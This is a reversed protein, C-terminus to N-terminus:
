TPGTRGSGITIEGYSGRQGWDNSDGLPHPASTVLDDGLRWIANDTGWPEVLTLAQDALAPLQTSLLRRVLGDDVSVEEDHMRM